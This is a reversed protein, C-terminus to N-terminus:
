TTYCAQAHVTLAPIGKLIQSVSYVASIQNGCTPSTVTFVSPSPNLGFSQAAAYSQTDAVTDCVSRNVTFCRAAQEAGHQLAFQAWMGFSLQWVGLLMLLFVPLTLAFEVASAGRQDNFFIKRTM